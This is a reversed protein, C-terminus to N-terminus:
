SIDEVPEEGLERIAARLDDAAKNLVVDDTSRLVLSAGFRGSRIFPYSGIDVDPYRDQLASLPGAMRGEPVFAGITISLMKAGGSLEHKFGEFMGQMINPIGAMVYVNELRFGPARSIPNDILAAGSPIETMKLRAETMEMDREKMRELMMQKAEENRELAVGFAKAVCASTIDDHTPGIGGSTFVYDFKARCENVTDIIVQEIDPIIRCEMMRVGIENLQEGLYSLNADQTRGSLIENGIILMCATVIKTESM